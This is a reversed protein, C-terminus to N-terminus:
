RRSPDPVLPHSIENGNVAVEVTAGELGPPSAAFTFVREAGPLVYGLLGAALVTRHSSARLRLDALQAHMTGHNSVRLRVGGDAAELQWTLEPRIAKCKAATVFVPVSYQMVYRLGSGKPSITPVENIALRYADECTGPNAAVVRVLQRQGPAISAMPPSALLADTAELRDGQEGQSWRYVRVQTPLPTDATNVLWLVSSRGEIVVSVPEVQLGSALAPAAALAAALTLAQSVPRVLFPM